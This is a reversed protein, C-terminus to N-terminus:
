KSGTRVKEYMKAMTKFHEEFSLFSKAVERAQEGLKRLKNRDRALTELLDCLMSANGREFFFGGKKEQLWDEPGGPRSSIITCGFWAAELGVFGFSEPALNPMVLVDAWQYFFALRERPLAPFLLLEGQPFFLIRKKNAGIGIAKFPTKLKELAKKLVSLGKGPTERGVFLIRLNKHSYNKILPRPWNKHLPLFLPLVEVKEKQFGYITLAKKVFNSPCHILSARQLLKRKLTHRLLDRLNKHGCKYWCHIGAPSLCLEGDTPFNMSLRPCFNVLDHMTLLSKQSLLFLFKLPTRYYVVHWHLVDARRSLRLFYALDIKTTEIIQAEYGQARQKRVLHLLYTEAGGRFSLDEHFHLIRM